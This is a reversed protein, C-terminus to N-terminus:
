ASHLVGPHPPVPLQRERNWPPNSYNFSLDLSRRIVDYSQLLTFGTGINQSDKCSYTQLIIVIGTLSLLMCFKLFYFYWYLYWYFFWYVQHYISVFYLLINGQSVCAPACSRLFRKQEHSLTKLVLSVDCRSSSPSLVQHPALPAFLFTFQLETCLQNIFRLFSRFLVLFFLLLLNPVDALFAWPVDRHCGKCHIQCLSFHISLM